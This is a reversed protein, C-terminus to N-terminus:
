WSKWHMVSSVAPVVTSQLNRNSKLKGHKSASASQLLLQALLMGFVHGPMGISMSSMWMWMRFPWSQEHLQKRTPPQNLCCAVTPWTDAPIHHHNYPHPQSSQSMCDDVMPWCLGSVQDLPTRYWKFIGSTCLSTTNPVFMWPFKSTVTLMSVLRSIAKSTGGLCSMRICM